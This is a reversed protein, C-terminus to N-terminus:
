LIEDDSPVYDKSKCNIIEAVAKEKRAQEQRNIALYAVRRNSDNLEKSTEVVIVTNESTLDHKEIIENVLLHLENLVRMAMPNRLTFGTRPKELKGTTSKPFKEIASHHWLLNTADSKVGYQDNLM